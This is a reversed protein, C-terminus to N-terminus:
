HQTQCSGCYRAKDPDQEESDGYRLVGLDQSRGAAAAAAAAAAAIVSKYVRQQSAPDSPAARLWVCPFCVIEECFHICASKLKTQTGMLRM